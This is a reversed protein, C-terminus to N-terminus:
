SPPTIGSTGIDGWHACAIVPGTKAVQLLAICATSGGTLVADKPLTFTAPEGRWMGAPVLHRAINHYIMKRGANEGKAITVAIEPVIPMLWLMAQKAASSGGIEVAFETNSGTMGMAVSAKRGRAEAIAALVARRNSGVFPRGGNVIMQPTFVDMDGRAKAYDYQRQSFEAGGLTDKWGLYDWYDVHYTLGVVGPMARLESMFADAPPCSSCGQSTFLEVVM